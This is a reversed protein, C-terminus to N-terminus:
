LLSIIKFLLKIGQYYPRHQKLNFYNRLILKSLHQQINNM